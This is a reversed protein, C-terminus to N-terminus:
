PRLRQANAPRNSRTAPPPARRNTAPPSPNDDTTWNPRPAATTPPPPTPRHRSVTGLQQHPQRMWSTETRPLDPPAAPAHPPASARTPPPATPRCPSYVGRPRRQWRAAGPSVRAARRTPSASWATPGHQSSSSRRLTRANRLSLAERHVPRHRRRDNRAAVGRHATSSRSPRLLRSPSRGSRAPDRSRHPTSPHM